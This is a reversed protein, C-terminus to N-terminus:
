RLNPSREKIFYFVNKAGQLIGIEDSSDIEMRMLRQENM